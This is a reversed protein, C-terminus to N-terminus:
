SLCLGERTPTGDQRYGAVQPQGDMGEVPGELRRRLSMGLLKMTTVPSRSAQPRM